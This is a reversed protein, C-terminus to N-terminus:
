NMQFVVKLALTVYIMIAHPVVSYLTGWPHLLGFLHRLTWAGSNMHKALQSSKSIERTCRSVPAFLLLLSSPLKCFDSFYWLFTATRSSQYLLSCVCLAGRNGLGWYTQPLSIYYTNLVIVQCQFTLFLCPMTKKKKKGLFFHVIHKLFSEVGFKDIYFM